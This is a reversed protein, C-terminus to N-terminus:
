GGCFVSEALEKRKTIYYEYNSLSVEPPVRHDVTPIFGGQKVMEAARQLALDISETGEVLAFKDIGGVIIFDPYKKRIESLDTGARIECPYLGDVGVEHLLSVLENVNGDSDVLLTGVGMTHFWEVAEEYFPAMFRYFFSPSVLMGGKYCMDEWITVFDITLENLARSSIDKMFQLAHRNIDLILNPDDYSALSFREIGMLSRGFGLFGPVAFGLPQGQAKKDNVIEEWNEPYREALTGDLRSLLNEFDERTEVPFRIWQPMSSSEKIEKVLIGFKNYKTVSCETEEIIKEEFLPYIVSEWFYPCLPLHNVFPGRDLGFFDEM